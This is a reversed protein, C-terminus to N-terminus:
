VVCQGDRCVAVMREAFALCESTRGAQLFTSFAERMLDLVKPHCQTMTEKPTNAPCMMDMARMYLGVSRGINSEKLEKAANAVMEASRDLDGNIGYMEAAQLMDQAALDTDKM